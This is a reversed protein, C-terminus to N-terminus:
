HADRTGKTAKHCKALRQRCADLVAKPTTDTKKAFIDLVVVADNALHYMVRWNAEGDRIRLEHCGSGITPMPRSAPLGLLEGRQLRRLLFGAEVRAADSLPPTKVEGKLWVLPKDHPSM